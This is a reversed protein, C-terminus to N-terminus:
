FQQGIYVSRVEGNRRIIAEKNNVSVLTWGSTGIAEGLKFRQTVGNIAFLAASPDPAELEILGVLTHQAAPAPPLEPKATVTEAPAPTLEPKATGTDAPAPTTPAAAQPSTTPSSTTPPSAPPSSTASPSTTPPAIKPVAVKTPSSQAPSPVKPSPIASAPPVQPPYVPYYVTKELITTSQSSTSSQNGAGAKAQLNSNGTNDTTKGKKKNAETKRDIRDLSRLAYEIFQADSASLQTKQASLLGMESLKSRLWTQRQQSTLLMILTAVMSILGIVWLFKEWSWGSNKSEPSVQPSEQTQLLEGPLDDDTVQSVLPQQEEQLITEAQPTTVPPMVISQLSVYEPKAPETPLKTGGELIRDIDSFLDDMLKDAESEASWPQIPSPPTSQEKAIQKTSVDESM